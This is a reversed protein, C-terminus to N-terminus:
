DENPADEYDEGRIPFGVSLKGCVSNGEWEPQAAVLLEYGHRLAEEDFVVREPTQEIIAARIAQRARRLAESKADRPTADSAVV